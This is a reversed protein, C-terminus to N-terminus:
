SVLTVYDELTSGTQRIVQGRVTITCAVLQHLEGGMEDEEDVSEIHVQHTTGADVMTACQLVAVLNSAACANAYVSEATVAENCVVEIMVTLEAVDADDDRMQRGRKLNMALVRAQVDFSDPYAEGRHAVRIEAVGGAATELRTTLLRLVLGKDIRTAM